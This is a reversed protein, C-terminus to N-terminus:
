NFYRFDIADKNVLANYLPPGEAVLNLIENQKTDLVM